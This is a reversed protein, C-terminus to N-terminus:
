PAPVAPAASVAPAPAPGPTAFVAPQPVVLPTNNAAAEGLLITGYTYRVPYSRTVEIMRAAEALIPDMDRARITITVDGVAPPTEAPRDWLGRAIVQPIGIRINDIITSNTKMAYNLNITKSGLEAETYGPIRYTIVAEDLYFLPLKSVKRVTPAGTDSFVTEDVLETSPITRDSVTQLTIRPDITVTYNANLVAGLDGWTTLSTVALNMASVSDSNFAEGRAQVAMDAIYLRQYPSLGGPLPRSQCGAAFATLLGASLSLGLARRLLRSTRM